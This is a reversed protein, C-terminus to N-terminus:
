NPQPDGLAVYLLQRFEGTHQRSQGEAINSPVSVACRRMQNVLGYLENSPFNTTIKYIERVLDIGRQWIRLVRYGQIKQTM